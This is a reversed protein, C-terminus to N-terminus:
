TEACISIRRTTAQLLPHGTWLQVHEYGCAAALHRIWCERISAMGLPRMRETALCTPRVGPGWDVVQLAARPVSVNLCAGFQSIGLRVAAGVFGSQGCRGALGPAPAEALTLRQEIGVAQLSRTLRQLYDPATWGLRALPLMLYAVLQGTHHAWAGGGRHLWRVGVGRSNLEGRDVRLDAASGHRGITVGCPHECLLLVGFTDRREALEATVRDQLFLAAELETPGLLHVHLAASTRRGPTWDMRATTM